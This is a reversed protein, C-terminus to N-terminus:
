ALFRLKYLTSLYLAIIEDILNQIASDTEDCKFLTNNVIIEASKRSISNEESFFENLNPNM